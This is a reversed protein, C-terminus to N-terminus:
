TLRPSFFLTETEAPRPTSAKCPAWSPTRPDIGLTSLLRRFTSLHPQGCTFRGPWGSSRTSHVQWSADGSPRRQLRPLQGAGAVTKNLQLLDSARCVASEFLAAPASHGSRPNPENQTVPTPPVPKGGRIFSDPSSLVGIETYLIPFFPNTTQTTNQDLYRSHSRNRYADPPTQPQANARALRRNEQLETRTKGAQRASSPSRLGRARGALRERAGLSSAYSISTALDPRSNPAPEHYHRHGRM